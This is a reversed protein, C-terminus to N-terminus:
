SESFGSAGLYPETKIFGMEKILKRREKRKNRKMLRDGVKSVSTM